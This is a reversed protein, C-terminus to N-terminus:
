FISIFPGLNAKQIYCNRISLLSLHAIQLVQRSRFDADADNDQGIPKFLHTQQSDWIDRGVFESHCSCWWSALVRRVMLKGPNEVGRIHMSLNTVHM